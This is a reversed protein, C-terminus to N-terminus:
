KDSLAAYYSLLLVIVWYFYPLAFIISVQLPSQLFDRYGLQCLISLSDLPICYCVIRHWLNLLNLSLYRLVNKSLFLIWEKTYIDLTTWIPGCPIDKHIQCAFIRVKFLLNYCLAVFIFFCHLM